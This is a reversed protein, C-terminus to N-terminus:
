GYGYPARIGTMELNMHGLMEDPTGFKDDGWEFAFRWIGYKKIKEASVLTMDTVRPMRRAQPIHEDLWINYNDIFRNYEAMWDMPSFFKQIIGLIVSIPEKLIAAQFVPNQLDLTNLQVGIIDALSQSAEPFKELTPRLSDTLMDHAEGIMQEVTVPGLPTDVAQFPATVPLSVPPQQFATEPVKHPNYAVTSGRAYLDPNVEDFMGSGPIDGVPPFFYDPEITPIGSTPIDKKNIFALIGLAGLIALITNM